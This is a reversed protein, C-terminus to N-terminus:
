ENSLKEKLRRIEGLYEAMKQELAVKIAGHYKIMFRDLVAQTELRRIRKWPNWIM